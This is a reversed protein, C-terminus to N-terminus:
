GKKRERHKAAAPCSVFHSQYRPGDIVEDLLDGAMVRALGDKIVINGGDKPASDLPMLANTAETRVWVVLAGCSRCRSVEPM